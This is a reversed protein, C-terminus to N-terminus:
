EVTFSTHMGKEYHVTDGDVVNCFLVYKGPELDVTLEESDGVEIDEIEDVPEIGEGEEDVSGDEATPLDGDALDTKVVVFEHTVGGVNEVSFTTEGSDATSPSVSVSFETLEVSPGEEDSSCAGLALAGCIMLIAFRRRHELSATAM